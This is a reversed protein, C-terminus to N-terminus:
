GELCAPHLACDSCSCGEFYPNCVGDAGGDQCGDCADVEACDGCVCDESQTCQPNGPNCGMCTCTALDAEDCFMDLDCELMPPAGAEGKGGDGGGGATGGSGGEGGTTPDMGGSAGSGGGGDGGGGGGAGGADDDDSGGGGFLTQDIGCAGALALATLLLGFAHTSRM